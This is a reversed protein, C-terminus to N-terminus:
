VSFPYKIPSGVVKYDEVQFDSGKLKELDDWENLNDPLVLTPAYSPIRGIHEKAFPLQDEYIHANVIKHYAKKPNKGTIKAMIALFMYVQVMNFTLGLPVDCSRQVANLYLDDGLLSFQFNYMCPRLCGRHFEDPKWYTIIEGRDDIGNKLNRYVKNFQDFGGFNAGVAGYVFGMDDDGQRELNNLWAENLNANADWTKTGLERMKAASTVATLYGVLEAAMPEVNCPRTTLLPLAGNGVDYELDANIVTRVFKGTRENYIDHGEEVIRRMLTLYSWEATHITPATKQM